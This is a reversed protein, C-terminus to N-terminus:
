GLVTSSPAPEDSGVRAGGDCSASHRREVLRLYGGLPSIRRRWGDIWPAAEAAVPDASVGRVAWTLTHIGQIRRRRGGRLADAAWRRQGGRPVSGSPWSTLEFARGYTGACDQVAREGRQADLTGGGRTRRVDVQVAAPDAIWRREGADYDFAVLVADPDTGAHTAVLRLGALGAAADGGPPWVLVPDALGPPLLPLDAAETWPEGLKACEYIPQHDRCTEVTALWREGVRYLQPFSLHHDTSLVVQGPVLLEGRVQLARIAGLGTRRNLEEVFLWGGEAAVLCPDAWFRDARGNQWAGALQIRTGLQTVPVRGFGPESVPACAWERVTVSARALRGAFRALGAADALRARWGPSRGPGHCGVPARGGDPLPACVGAFAQVTLPGAVRRAAACTAAVSRLRAVWGRAVISGHPDALAVEVEPLARLVADVLVDSRRLPLGDGGVLLLDAAGLPEDPEDLWVNVQADPAMVRPDAHLEYFAEALAVADGGDGAAATARFAVPPLRRAAAPRSM